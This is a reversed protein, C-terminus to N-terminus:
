WHFAAALATWVPALSAATDSGTAAPRLPRLAATTVAATGGPAAMGLKAIVQLPRVAVQLQLGALAQRPTVPKSRAAMFVIMKPRPLEDQESALDASWTPM